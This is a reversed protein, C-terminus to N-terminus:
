AVRVGSFIPPSSLHWLLPLLGEELKRLNKALHGRKYTVYLQIM